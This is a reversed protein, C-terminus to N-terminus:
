CHIRQKVNIKKSMVNLLNIKSFINKNSYYSETYGAIMTKLSNCANPTSLILVWDFM